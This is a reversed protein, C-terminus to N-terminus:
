RFYDEPYPSWDNWNSGYDPRDKDIDDEDWDEESIEEQSSIGFIGEIIGDLISQAADDSINEADIGYKDLISDVNINVDELENGQTDEVEKASDYMESMSKEPSYMTIVFHKPVKIINENTYEAWKNLIVYEKEIGSLNKTVFGKISMPRELLFKNSNSGSIRAILREGNTLRIIRYGKDNNRRPM